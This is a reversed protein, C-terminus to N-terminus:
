LAKAGRPAGQRRRGLKPAPTMRPLRVGRRPRNAPLITAPSMTYHEAFCRGRLAAGTPRASWGLSQEFNADAIRYWLTQSQRWFDLVPRLSPRVMPGIM